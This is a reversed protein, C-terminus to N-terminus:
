GAGPATGASANARRNMLVVLWAAFLLLEPDLEASAKVQMRRTLAHVPACTVVPREGDWLQFTRSLALPRLTWSRADAQLEMTRSFANPKRARAVVGNSEVLEWEGSAAGRKEVRYRRGGVQLSGSERFPVIRTGGLVEGQQELQFDWSCIGIPNLDYTM